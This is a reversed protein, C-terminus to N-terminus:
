GWARGILGPLVHLGRADFRDGAATAALDGVILDYSVRVERSPLM